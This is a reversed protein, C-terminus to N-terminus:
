KSVGLVAKKNGMDRLAFLSGYRDFLRLKSDLLREVHQDVSLSMDAPPAPDISM